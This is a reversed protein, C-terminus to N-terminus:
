KCNSKRSSYFGSQYINIINNINNTNNNINVESHNKILPIGKNSIKINKISLNGIKISSSNNLSSNNNNRNQASSLFKQIFFIKKDSNDRQKLNHKKKFLKNRIRQM